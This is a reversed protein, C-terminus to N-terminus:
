YNVEFPAWLAHSYHNLPRISTVCWATNSWHNFLPWVAHQIPDPTSSLDCLMSYHHLPQFTVCCAAKSWLNLFPWVAYQILESTSSLGSLMSYYNLPHIPTVCFASLAWLGVTKIYFLFRFLCMMFFTIKLRTGSCLVRRPIVRGIGTSYPIFSGPETVRYLLRGINHPQKILIFKM